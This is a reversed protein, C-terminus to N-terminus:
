TLRGAELRVVHDAEALGARGHTILLVGVGAARASRLLEPVLEGAAREDLHAAPEDLVLLRVDALLARALALRQRQGGSLLGGDEGVPADLGGPRQAVWEWAHARRLADELEADAAGPRAILLNERVSTPFIHDGALGVVQRVDAQAHDRVDVGDLLVRGSQPDLFRVLLRALTTKGAGSPGTLATVQGPELVLDIGDLVPAEDDYSVRVGRLEVRGRGVPELPQAPDAVPATRDTLDLVRAAAAATAPRQTAAAPLPRVAEFAGLALLALMGLMVGELAGRHVAPVAAALVAVAAIGSLAVMVGEGGALTMASRRRLATLGDDCAAVRAAAEDEAGFALLEPAAALADVLETALGARASSERGAAEAASREALWPVGLGAVALVVALALGAAPLFLGAAVAAAVGAVLAVAAPGAVRLWLEQLEDVDGVFRSLLDGARIGPLGAPVLPELRAFLQVRLTSQARLAADHSVLRELYRLVARSIGFFRVGVITVGLALVPPQLAARSILYGSTALLGVGALVALAGLLAGAALRPWQPRALGAIRVLPRRM